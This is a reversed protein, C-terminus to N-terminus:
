GGLCWTSQWVAAEGARPRFGSARTGNQDYAPHGQFRGKREEQEAEILPDAILLLHRDFLLVRLDDREFL